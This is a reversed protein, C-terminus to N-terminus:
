KEEYGKKTKEGVLKDYEKQAKADSDFEKVSTQGASGIRGYTTVVSTGELEIEWFKSSSGEVFEFRRKGPATSAAAPAKAPTAKAPEAAKAPKKKPAEELAPDDDGEDEFLAGKKAPEKAKAPAAAAPATKAPATKAPATKAPAAGDDDVLKYGKKVKESVLKDYEKKAKEESDWDKVSTQGDTGIKGYTTTFSTGDLEIFWFKSSSGEIFEYRPM